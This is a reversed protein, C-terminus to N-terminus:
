TRSIRRSCDAIILVLSDCRQSKRVQPPQPTTPPQIRLANPARNTMIPLEFGDQGPRTRLQQQLQMLEADDASDARRRKSENRASNSSSSSDIEMASAGAGAGATSKTKAATVAAASAAAAKNPAQTKPPKNASTPLATVRKLRKAPNTAVSSRETSAERKRKGVIAGAIPLGDAAAVVASLASDAPKTNQEGACPAAHFLTASPRRERLSKDNVNLPRLAGATKHEASPLSPLSQPQPQLQLQLSKASQAQKKNVGVAGGKPDVSFIAILILFYWLDFSFCEGLM